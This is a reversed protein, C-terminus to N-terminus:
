KSARKGGRQPAPQPISVSSPAIPTRATPTPAIPGTSIPTRAVSPQVAPSGNTPPADGRTELSIAPGRKNVAGLSSESSRAQAIAQQTDSANVANDVASGVPMGYFDPGTPEPLASEVQQISRGIGIMGILATAAILYWM